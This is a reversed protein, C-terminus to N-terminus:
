LGTVFAKLVTTFCSLRCLLGCCDRAPCPFLQHHTIDLGVQLFSGVVPLSLQAVGTGLPTNVYIQLVDEVAGLTDPGQLCELSRLGAFPQCTIGHSYTQM